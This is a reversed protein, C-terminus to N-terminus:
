RILKEDNEELLFSNMLTKYQKLREFRKMNPSKRTCQALKTTYYHVRQSKTKM